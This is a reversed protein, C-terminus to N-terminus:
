TAAETQRARTAAIVDRRVVKGVPNRPFAELLHLAKPTRVPGIAQRVHARLSDADCRTADMVVAAELREGWVPDDVGFACAESVAPHDALAREVEALYVNYGGTIIMDKARGVLFLAGSSDIRGIDGTKLWGDHRAAATQDPDDLYRTAALDGGALVEGTADRTAIEGSETLVALPTDPFAFGVAARLEPQAMQAPRLGAIAMPAETQGYLTSLVPGFRDIARGIAEPAMPAASYTVHRLAPFDAPTFEAEEMLLHILTPPLFVTSVGGRLAKLIEARGPHRLVVHQGGAALIPLVYHSAGHSLPAAVLNVDADTLEYFWRISALARLASRNTQVVGKPVGTSGGTFKIACTAGPDRNPAPLAAAPDPRTAILDELALVPGDGQGLAARSPADCIVLALGARARLDGNLGAGNRPNLPVWVAGCRLIALYAVINQWSNAACLGVRAGPALRAALLRAADEVAAILAGHTMRTDGDTIALRAAKAPMGEYLTDIPHGTM